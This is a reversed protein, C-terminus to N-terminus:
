FPQLSFIFVVSMCVDHKVDLLRTVYLIISKAPIVASCACVLFSGLYFCKLVSFSLTLPGFTVCVYFIPRRCFIGFNDSVAVSWTDRCVCWCNLAIDPLNILLVKLGSFMVVFNGFVCCFPQTVAWVTLWWDRVVSTQTQILALAHPIQLAHLPLNGEM